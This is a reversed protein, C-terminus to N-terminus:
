PTLAAALNDLTAQMNAANHEPRNWVGSALLGACKVFLGRPGRRREQWTERVLVGGDTPEFEYGWRAVPIGAWSVDFAFAQPSDARCVTCTTSWKRWGRRNTGAFVDGVRMPRETEARGRGEPSWERMRNVDSVAHYARQATAGDIIREVVVASTNSAVIRAGSV